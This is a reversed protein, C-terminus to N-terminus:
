VKGDKLEASLEQSFPSSAADALTCTESVQRFPSGFLKQSMANVVAERVPRTSRGVVTSLAAFFCDGDPKIDIRRYPLSVLL